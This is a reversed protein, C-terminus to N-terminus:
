SKTPGLKLVQKSVPKNSTEIRTTLLLKQQRKESPRGALVDVFIHLCCGTWPKGTKFTLVRANMDSSGVFLVRRVFGV